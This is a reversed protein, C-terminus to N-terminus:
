SRLREEKERLNKIPNRPSAHIAHQGSDRSSQRKNKESSHLLSRRTREEKTFSSIYKGRGEGRFPRWSTKGDELGKDKKMKVNRGNSDSEDL